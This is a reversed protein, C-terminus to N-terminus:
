SREKRKYNKFWGYVDGSKVGRERKGTRFGGESPRGCIEKGNNEALKTVTERM